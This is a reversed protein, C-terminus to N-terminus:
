GDIVNNKPQFVRSSLWFLEWSRRTEYPTDKGEESLVPILPNLNKLGEVIVTHSARDAATLPSTDEKKEVIFETNYIDMISKGANKAIQIIEQLDISTM